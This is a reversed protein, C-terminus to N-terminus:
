KNKGRQISDVKLTEGDLSGSVTVNAGKEKETKLGSQLLATAKENGASDFKYFKDGSAIIGFNLTAPTAACLKEPKEPAKAETKSKEYCSSDVLRGSWTEAFCLVASLSFAAGFISIIKM